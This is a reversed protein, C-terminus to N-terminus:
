LSFVKQPHWLGKEGAFKMVALLRGDQTYASCYDRSCTDHIDLAIDLGKEVNSAQMEDLYVRSNGILAYDLPLLLQELQGEAIAEHIYGPTVADGIKFPGYSTRELDKLYAPCGINVGLDNALSRIYTGKSCSIKLKLYPLNFSIIEIDHIQVKRPQLTVEHGARALTCSKRGKIKVASFVPPVQEIDGKFSLLAEEVITRSINHLAGCATIRGERDYTDTSLGLEIGALYEKPREMLYEAVRTAQGLCVPLVGSAAPDLTGAHGVRREGTLRRIEAVISFSSCGTPKNVNLLGNLGMRGM